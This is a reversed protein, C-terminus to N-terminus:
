KIKLDQSSAAAGSCEGSYLMNKDCAIGAITSMRHIACVCM